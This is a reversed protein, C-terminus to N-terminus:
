DALTHPSLSILKVALAQKATLTLEVVPIQTKEFLVRSCSLLVLSSVPTNTKVTVDTMLTALLDLLDDAESVLLDPPVVGVAEEDLWSLETLRIYMMMPTVALTMISSM